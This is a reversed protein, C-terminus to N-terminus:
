KSVSRKTRTEKEGTRAFIGGHIETSMHILATVAALTGIETFSLNNILYYLVIIPMSIRKIFISYFYLLPINRFYNLTDKPM